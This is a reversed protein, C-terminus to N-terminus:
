GEGSEDYVKPGGYLPLWFSGLTEVLVVAMPGIIFGAVGFSLLGGVLSLFLLFGLWAHRADDIHRGIRHYLYEISFHIVLSGLSLVVAAMHYGSSWSLIAIPLWVMTLGVVPLLTLAMALLILPVSPVLGTGWQHDIWYIFLGLIVGKTVALAITDNLLRLM